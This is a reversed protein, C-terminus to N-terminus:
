SFTHTFCFNSVFLFPPQFCLVPSTDRPQVKAVEMLESTWALIHLFHEPEAAAPAGLLAVLRRVATELVSARGMQMAGVIGSLLERMVNKNSTLTEHRMSHVRELGQRARLPSSELLKSASDDGRLLIADVGKDAAETQWSDM